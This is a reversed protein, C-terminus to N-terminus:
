NKSLIEIKPTSRKIFRDVSEFFMKQVKEGSKVDCSKRSQPAFKVRVLKGGEAVRQGL